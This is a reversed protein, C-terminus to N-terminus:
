LRWPRHLARFQQREIGARDLSKFFVSRMTNQSLPKGFGDDSLWINGNRRGDKVLQLIRISRPEPLVTPRPSWKNKMDGNTSVIGNNSVHRLIPISALTMGDIHLERIEDLMPALCEGSRCSDFASLIFAPEAITGYLAPWLKDNLEDLTWIGDGSKRAKTPMRYSYEAVNRDVCENLLCFKLIQKMVTLCKRATQETKTSIWEQMDSYRVNSAPVDAWRPAVHTRWASMIQEHTGPKILEGRKGPRQESEYTRLMELLDPHCWLEFAQGVIPCPADDGPKIQLRALERDGERKRGDVTKSHRAYGKGDHLDVWYRLRRYGKRAAPQNSGWSARQRPMIYDGDKSTTNHKGM